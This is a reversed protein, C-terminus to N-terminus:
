VRAGLDHGEEASAYGEREQDVQDIWQARARAVDQQGLQEGVVHRSISRLEQSDGAIHHSVIEDSVM